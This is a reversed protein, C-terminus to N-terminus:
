AGIREDAECARRETLTERDRVECENPDDDLPEATIKVVRFPRIFPYKLHCERARAIADERTTYVEVDLHTKDMVGYGFPQRVVGRLGNIAAPMPALPKCDQEYESMSLECMDGEQENAWREYHVHAAKQEDASLPWEHERCPVLAEAVREGFRRTLWEYTEDDLYDRTTM